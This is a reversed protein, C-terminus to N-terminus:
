STKFSLMKFSLKKKEKKKKKNMLGVMAKRRVRRKNGRCTNKLNEKRMNVTM